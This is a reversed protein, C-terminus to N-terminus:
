VPFREIFDLADDVSSAEHYNSRHTEDVFDNEFARDFQRILPDYYGNVNLVVCPKSHIGLQRHAIVECIEEFTGFGGPLALFADARRAMTAKREHMDATVILEDVTELALERDRLAEPIVGVVRGGADLTAEAVEGMLGIHGGGFVLSHGRRAIAHGLERAVEFYVEPVSSSSACFVCIAKKM